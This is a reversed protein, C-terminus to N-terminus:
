KAKAFEGLIFGCLDRDRIQLPFALPAGAVVMTAEDRTVVNNAGHSGKVLTADLPISKTVPDFFLEVPDYGPKRHIDVTRAFAPAKVDNFWWYYAQWSTPESIVVVDGSREHDLKIRKRAHGALASRVGSARDFMSVVHKIVKPCRDRVFVHSIQHDVLAWATSNAFDLYEGGDQEVVHLLGADRLLRNPFSVHDVDSIV